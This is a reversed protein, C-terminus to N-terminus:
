CNKFMNVRLRHCVTHGFGVRRKKLSGLGLDLHSSILSVLTAGEVITTCPMMTFTSLVHKHTPIYLLTSESDISPQFAELEESERTKQNKPSGTLIMGDTCVGFEVFPLYGCMNVKPVPFNWPCLPGVCRIQHQNSHSEGYGDHGSEGM